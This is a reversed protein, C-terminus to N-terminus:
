TGPRLAAALEDTGSGLRGHTRTVVALKRYDVKGGPTLPLHDVPHFVVHRGPVGLWEALQRCQAQHVAPDGAGVVYIVDDGGVVATPQGPQEVLHELDDLSTRVGLV